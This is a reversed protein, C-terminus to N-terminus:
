LIVSPHHPICPIFGKSLYKQSLLEQFWVAGGASSDSFFTTENTCVSLILSPSYLPIFLSPFQPHCAAQIVRKISCFISAPNHTPPLPLILGHRSIMGRSQHMGWLVGAEFQVHGREGEKFMTMSITYEPNVRAIKIWRDSVRWTPSLYLQAVIYFCKVKLSMRHQIWIPIVVLTLSNLYNLETLTVFHWLQITKNLSLFCFRCLM